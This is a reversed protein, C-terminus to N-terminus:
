RESLEDPVPRVDTDGEALKRKILTVIQRQSITGLVGSLEKRLHHVLHKHTRTVGGWNCNEGVDAGCSTVPCMVSIVAQYEMEKEAKLSLRYEQQLATLETFLSESHAKAQQYARVAASPHMPGVTVPGVDITQGDHEDRM